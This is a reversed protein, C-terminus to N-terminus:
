SGEGTGLLLNRAPPSASSRGSTTAAPSTSRMSSNSRSARRPRSPAHEIVQRLQSALEALDAPAPLEQTASAALAQQLEVERAQLDAVKAGLAQVRKGCQAEPLTGAEFAGLYREIAAEAQGRIFALLRAHTQDRRRLAEALSLRRGAQSARANFADIGGQV